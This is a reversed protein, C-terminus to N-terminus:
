NAKQKLIAGAVIREAAKRAGSINRSAPGLELEALPGSVYVGDHWCLSENVIPYGCSACPLSESEVLQDIFSGGPRYGSFGTSLLVRQAKFEDGSNMSITLCENQLGVKLTAHPHLSWPVFFCNPRGSSLIPSYLPRYPPPCQNTEARGARCQNYIKTRKCQNCKQNYTKTLNGM